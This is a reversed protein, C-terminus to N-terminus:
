RSPRAHTSRPARRKSESKCAWLLYQTADLAWLNDPGEKWEKDPREGVFGLAESLEDLAGEFQDATTGFVLKSIIETLAIDLQAYEGFQQVWQQM